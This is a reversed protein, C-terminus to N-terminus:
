ERIRNRPRWTILYIGLLTMFGGVLQIGSPFVELFIWALILTWVAKSSIILSTSTAEIRILAQYAFVITLLTEFLSGLALDRWVVDQFHLQQGSGLLLVIFVVALLITRILSMMEPVLYEKFRRGTITALSFFFSATIVYMAGPDTFGRFAGERFNLAFVGAITVLIGAAQAGRFRERLLTIGMITVFVPGINGIFSVVAPNEMARIALYFLGTAVGELIAILFAVILKQRTNVRINTYKRRGLYWVSNWFIGLTFWVAGFQIMSVQNLASKSFIFSSSLALAAGLAFLYGSTQQKM